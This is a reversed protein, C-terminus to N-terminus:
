FSGSDDSGGGDFGGGDDFAGGQDGSDFGPDATGPDSWDATPADTTGAGAWPDSAATDATGAGAWPDASAADGYNNVVTENIVEGGGFGGGYSHGAFMSSIADAALVGGAVGAATTLASGLFGSGGRGFM